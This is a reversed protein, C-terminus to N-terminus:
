EGYYLEITGNTQLSARNFDSEELQTMELTILPQTGEVFCIYGMGTNGWTDVWEFEAAGNEDLILGISETAYYPSVNYGVYEVSFQVYNIDTNYETVCVYYCPGNENYGDATYYNGLYDSYDINEDVDEVPEVVYVEQNSGSYNLAFYVLAGVGVVAVLGLVLALVISIIIIAIKLGKKKKKPPKNNVEAYRDVANNDPVQQLDNGDLKSGCVGCYETLPANQTGCQKCVM